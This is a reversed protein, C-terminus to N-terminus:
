LQNLLALALVVVAGTVVVTIVPQKNFYEKYKSMMSSVYQMVSNM